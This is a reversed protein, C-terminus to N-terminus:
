GDANLIGKPACALRAQTAELLFDSTEPNALSDFRPQPDDDPQPGHPFASPSELSSHVVPPGTAPSSPPPRYRPQNMDGDPRLRDPRQDVRHAPRAPPQGAFAVCVYPESFHGRCWGKAAARPEGRRSDPAECGGMRRCSMSSSGGLVHTSHIKRLRHNCPRLGLWSVGNLVKRVSAKMGVHVGSLGRQSLSELFCSWAKDMEGDAVILGLAEGRRERGDDADGGPGGGEGHGRGRRRDTRWSVTLVRHGVWIADAKAGSPSFRDVKVSQSAAKGIALWREALGDFWRCSVM